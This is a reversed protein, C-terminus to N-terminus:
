LEDFGINFLKDIAALAEQADEGHATFKLQAGPEAALMMIGMISKGNVQDGDKEVYIDCSFRNSVKVLM